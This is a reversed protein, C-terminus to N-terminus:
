VTAFAFCCDPFKNSSLRKLKPRQGEKARQPCLRHQLFLLLLDGAYLIKVSHSRTMIHHIVWRCELYLVTKVKLFHIFALSTWVKHTNVLYNEVNCVEHILLGGGGETNQSNKSPSWSVKTFMVKSHPTWSFIKIWDDPTPVPFSLSWSLHHVRRRIFLWVLYVLSLFYKYYSIEKYFLRQLM